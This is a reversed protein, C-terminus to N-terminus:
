LSCQRPSSQTSLFIRKPRNILIIPTHQTHLALQGLASCAHFGHFRNGLASIRFPKERGLPSVQGAPECQGTCCSARSLTWIRWTEPSPDPSARSARASCAAASLAAAVEAEEEEEENCPWSAACDMPKCARDQLVGPDDLCLSGRLFPRLPPCGFAAPRLLGRRSFTAILQELEARRM